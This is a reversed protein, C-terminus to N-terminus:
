RLGGCHRNYIEFYRSAMLEATFGSAIQRGRSGLRQRLHEDAKLNLIADALQGPSAPDILIGDEDDRVIEPVGGVRSAVIPLSRDMADLLIGGIGEKNSPLIFIDFAALYDGVNDVWGTFVLNDLGGALDRLM